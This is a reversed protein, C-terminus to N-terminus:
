SLNKIIDLYKRIQKEPTFKEAQSLAKAKQENYFNIDSLLSIIAEAFAASDNDQFMLGGQGVVETLSSNNSSLVPLGCKMAELPPLGFGEYHSPFLFLTALNYLIPLDGENVYQLYIIRDIRKQIGDMIKKFGYGPSGILVIKIEIDKLHLIDSIDLILKINKREEIAGVYLVFKNTLNFKKLLSMRERSNFNLPKYREDTWLHMYSIKDPPVGHIKIIDQRASESITLIADSRKIAPPLILDMYKRYHFTYYEKFLKPMSDYIVILNKYRGKKIPVLIYPSFYIDIKNKELLKPLKFNLWYHNFLQKPVKTKKINIIQYREDFNYIEEYTFLYYENENDYYPIYKILNWLYRSIGTMNGALLRADIGIRM